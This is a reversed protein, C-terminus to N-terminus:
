EEAGLATRVLLTWGMHAMVMNRFPGASLPRAMTPAVARLFEVIAERDVCARRLEPEFVRTRWREQYAAWPMAGGQYLHARWHKVPDHRTFYEVTRDALV